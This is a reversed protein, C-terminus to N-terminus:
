TDDSTRSKGKRSYARKSKLVKPQFVGKALAAAAPSRRAGPKLLPKKRKTRKKARTVARGDM